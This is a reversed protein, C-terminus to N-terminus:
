PVCTWTFYHPMRKDIRTVNRFHCRDIKHMKSFDISSKERNERELFWRERELLTFTLNFAHMLTGITNQDSFKHELSTRGLKFNLQWSM